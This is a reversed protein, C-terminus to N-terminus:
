RPWATDSPMPRPRHVDGRRSPGPRRPSRGWERRAGRMGLAPSDGTSRGGVRDERVSRAGCGGTRMSGDGGPTQGRFATHPLTGNHEEFYFAVLNRVKAASDRPHLFLGDHQLVRWWAEILLNAFRIETMALVRKLLGGDILEDVSASCNEVGADAM